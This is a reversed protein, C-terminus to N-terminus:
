KYLEELAAKLTEGTGFIPDFDGNANKVVKYTGTAVDYDKIAENGGFYTSNFTSPDIALTKGKYDITMSVFQQNENLPNLGTDLRLFMPYIDVPLEFVIDQANESGKFEVWISNEDKFPTNIDLDEKFFLQFSDDNLVKAKLIVKLGVAKEKPAEVTEDKKTEEKCSVFTIFVLLTLFINKMIKFFKHLFLFFNSLILKNLNKKQYFLL